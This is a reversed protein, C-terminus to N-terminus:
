VVSIGNAELRDIGNKAHTAGFPGKQGKKPGRPTLPRNPRWAFVAHCNRYPDALVVQGVVNLIVSRYRVEDWLCKGGVFAGQGWQELM